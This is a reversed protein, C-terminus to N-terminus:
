PQLALGGCARVEHDVRAYRQCDASPKLIEELKHVADCGAISCFASTRTGISHETVAAVTAAAYVTMVIIPGSVYLVVIRCSAEPTSTTVVRSSSRGWAIVAVANMGNDASGGSTNNDTRDPLAVCRARSCVGRNPTFASDRDCAAQDRRNAEFCGSRYSSLSRGVNTPGAPTRNRSPHTAWISASVIELAGPPSWVMNM